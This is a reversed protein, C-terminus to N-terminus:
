NWGRWKPGPYHPAASAYLNAAIYDEDQEDNVDEDELEEGAENRPVEGEEEEEERVQSRANNRRPIFYGDLTHQRTMSEPKKAKGRKYQTLRRTPLERGNKNQPPLSGVAYRAPFREPMPIRAPRQVQTWDDDTPFYRLKNEPHKGDFWECKKAFEPCTRDWSAHDNVKCSVCYRKSHDTCESSRHEGGCTGCTDKEATCDSAYHGWKRCKMCQTPEQKLKEPFVKMGRIYLGEKICRNAAKADKMVFTAHAVRQEPKRRYEPKIWRAKAIVGKELNNGEEVERLQDNQEPEFTLPVRPILLAYQQPKITAGTAFNATFILEVESDQIWAAAEKTNFLIIIGNRRTRTVELITLGEPPPPSVVLRIAEMVKNKIDDLSSTILNEMTLEILVQRQKRDMNREIEEDVMPTSAQQQRRPPAKMLADRYTSATNALQSTTSSVKTIKDEMEAAAATLGKAAEELKDTIKEIGEQDSAKSAISQSIQKLKGEMDQQIDTRLEELLKPFAVAKTCGDCHMDINMSVESLHTIAKAVAPSMRFNSALILLANTLTFPNCPAASALISNAELFKRAETYKAKMEAQAVAEPTAKQRLRPPNATPSPTESAIGRSIRQAQQRGSTLTPQSM